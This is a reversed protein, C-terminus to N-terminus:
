PRRQNTNSKPRRNLSTGGGGFFFFRVLKRRRVKESMSKKGPGSLTETWSAGSKPM